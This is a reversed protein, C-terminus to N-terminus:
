TLVKEFFDFQQAVHMGAREYLRTAGTTNQSDVGLGVKREGRRYFEGFSYLLLAMGLGQQRWPQRVALHRVWGLNPWHYCLSTGAVQDGDMALFFLSADFDDRAMSRAAWDEFTQPVHGWHDTFAEEVAEFTARAEIDPAMAHVTIGAPWQPAPPAQALDIEMRWFSRVTRYGHREFLARAATNKHSTIHSNTVQAGPPALPIHTRARADCWQMLATGIGRGFHEPHVTGVSSITIHPEKEWSEAYGIIEGAATEVVWTNSALDFRPRQWEALVDERSTDPEGIEFADHAQMLAVVSDVDDITAPRGTLGAPLIVTM